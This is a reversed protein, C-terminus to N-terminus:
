VQPFGLTLTAYSWILPCRGLVDLGLLLDFAMEPVGAVALVPRDVVLPGLGLTQFRHLRVPLDGGLGLTSIMPDRAMGTADLGLRVMGRANLMSRSAGTDLLAVLAQGDLRVPALLLDARWLRLAVRAAPQRQAFPSVGLRRGPLDLALTFHRLVDAGLLGDVGGLGSDTVAISLAAGRQRQYLALGGLRASAIDANAHTELMGGTGRLTSDVWRDMPLGLRRVAARTLVSREAGTDLAMNAHGGNLIVPVVCRNGSVDIPIPPLPAVAALGRLLFDRRTM